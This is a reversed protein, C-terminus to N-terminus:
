SIQPEGSLAKPEVSYALKIVTLKEGADYQPKDAWGCLNKLCFILMCNDGSLAKEQAKRILAFRSSVGKQHRFEAFSLGSKDKIFREITDPSCSFFAAADELTPKMRMLSTLQQFSIATKPRPM